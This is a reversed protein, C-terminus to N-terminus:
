WIAGEVDSRIWSDESAHTHYASAKVGGGGGRESSLFYLTYYKYTKCVWKHGLAVEDYKHLWHLTQKYLYMHIPVGVKSYWGGVKKWRCEKAQLGAKRKLILKSMHMINLVHMLSSIGLINTIYFFVIVLLKLQLDPPAPSPIDMWLYM